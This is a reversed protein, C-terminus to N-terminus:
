AAIADSELLWAALEHAPMPRAFHFGQALDCDVDRLYAAQERTEIGEAVIQLGLRHALMVIGEVIARSELHWPLRAVFSRDIKLVSAPLSALHSLASHGTGFDDIATQIGAARLAHLGDRIRGAQDGLASETLEVTIRTLAVDNRDLQEIIAAALDGARFEIPSVNFSVRVPPVRARDWGRLDAAIRERVQRGVASILGIEEAVPIWDAPSISGLEPHEWRVLAEAAPTTGDGIRIIPQYHVALEGSAVATRLEREILERQLALRTMEASHLRVASGGNRKAQYMALDAARILHEADEADAPYTAAGISVALDVPGGALPVPRGLADLMQHLRASRELPMMRGRLLVVFEDGALRAVLDGPHALSQLRQAIERLLDDGAEHGQTDNVLKFRDLDIFAVTLEDAGLLAQEIARDLQDLFVVRNPLGTLADRTAAIRFQERSARLERIVEDRRREAEVLDSVDRIMGVFWTRGDVEFESVSLHLPFESRDARRAVDNRGRGIVQPAGGERYRRLYGDHSRATSVPMLISLNQGILEDRDYGFMRECSPNVREIIGRDDAVVIADVAAEFLAALQGEQADRM